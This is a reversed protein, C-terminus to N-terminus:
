EMALEGRRAGGVRRRHFALPHQCQFLLDGAGATPRAAGGTIEDFRFARRRRRNELEIAGLVYSDQDTFSSTLADDVAIPRSEIDLHCRAWTAAILPRTTALDAFVETRSTVSGHHHCGLM